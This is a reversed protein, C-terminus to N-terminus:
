LTPVQISIRYKYRNLKFPPKSDNTRPRFNATYNHTRNETTNLFLFFFFIPTTNSNIQHMFVLNKWM